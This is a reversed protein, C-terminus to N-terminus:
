WELEEASIKATNQYIERIRGDKLRIVKDAM